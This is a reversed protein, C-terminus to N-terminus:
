AGSELEDIPHVGVRPLAPPHECHLWRLVILGYPRGETDLWDGDPLGRPPRASLVLRYRGDRRAAKAGSRSVPRHRHDLSNLYRSYLLANWHRCPVTEGEIVLAEDPGLRWAGRQYHIGPETFAAGDAMEAWHRVTNPEVQGEVAAFAGPMMQVTQGLRGLRHRFRAAEIPPPPEPPTVPEIACWGHRDTAVDDHFHRVWLQGNGEPLALWPGTAPEAGGVLLSFEGSPGAALGDGDIRAAATVGGSSDTYATVSTYVADGSHGTVRYQRDGRVDAVWYRTDPNDMFFKQRWGNFPVLEPRDRDTEFRALQNHLGRLLARYGDAREDESLDCTADGLQEGAARLAEVMDAWAQAEPSM